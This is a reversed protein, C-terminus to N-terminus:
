MNISGFAPMQMVHIDAHQAVTLSENCSPCSTAELFEEPIDHGCSACLSKSVVKPLIQGNADMTSEITEIM